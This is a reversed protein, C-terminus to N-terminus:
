GLTNPANVPPPPATPYPPVLEGQRLARRLRKAYWDTAWRAYSGPQVVWVGIQRLLRQYLRYDTVGVVGAGVVVRESLTPCLSAKLAFNIVATDWAQRRQWLETETVLRPMVGPPSYHRRRFRTRRRRPATHEPDPPDTVESLSLPAPPTYWREVRRGVYVGLAFALGLGFLYLSLM